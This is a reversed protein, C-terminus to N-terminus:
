ASLVALGPIKVPRRQSNLEVQVPKSPSFIIDSVKDSVGVLALLVRNLGELTAFPRTTPPKPAADAM